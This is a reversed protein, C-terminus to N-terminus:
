QRDFYDQLLIMAAVADDDGKGGILKQAQGTSLNEDVIEVELDIKAKLQEIFGKVKDMQVSSFKSEDHMPMGVIIKGIWEKQCIISLEELLNERTEGKIIKYPSAFNSETDGFALGVKVDGYDIALIKM